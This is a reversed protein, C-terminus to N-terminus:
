LRQITFPLKLRRNQRTLRRNHRIACLAYGGCVGPLFCVLFTILSEIM